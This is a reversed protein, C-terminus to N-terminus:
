ECREAETYRDQSDSYRDSGSFVDLGGPVCCTYGAANVATKTFDDLDACAHIYGGRLVVHAADEVEVPVYAMEEVAGDPYVVLSNQCEPPKSHQFFFHRPSKRPSVPKPLWWRYTGQGEIKPVRDWYGM